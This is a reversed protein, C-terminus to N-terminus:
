HMSKFVVGVNSVMNLKLSATLAHMAAYSAAKNYFRIILYLEGSRLYLTRLPFLYVSNMNVFLRYGYIRELLNHRGVSGSCRGGHVHDLGRETGQWDEVALWDVPRPVPLAKAGRRHLVLVNPGDEIASLFALIRDVVVLDVVVLLGIPWNKGLVGSLEGVGLKVRGVHLEVDNKHFCEGFFAVKKCISNALAVAKCNRRIKELLKGFLESSVLSWVAKSNM